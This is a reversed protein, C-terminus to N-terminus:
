RPKRQKAENILGGLDSPHRAEPERTQNKYLVCKGLGRVGTKIEDAKKLLREMIESCKLSFFIYIVSAQPNVYHSFFAATEGGELCPVHNRFSIFGKFRM